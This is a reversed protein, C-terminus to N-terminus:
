LTEDELKQLQQGYEFVHGMLMLFLFIPLFWLNISHDLTVDQVLDMNFYTELKRQSLVIAPWINRCFEYCIGGILSFWALKKLSPAVGPDFPKGLSMPELVRDLVRLLRCVFFALIARGLIPWFSDLRVWIPALMGDPKIELTLPGIVISETGGYFATEPLFLCGIAILGFLITAVFSCIYLGQIAHHLSSSTKKLEDM